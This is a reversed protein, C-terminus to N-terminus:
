LSVVGTAYLLCCLEVRCLVLHRGQEVGRRVKKVFKVQVPKSTLLKEDRLLAIKAVRKEKRDQEMREQAARAIEQMQSSERGNYQEHHVVPKSTLLKEDRQLAPMKQPLAEHNHAAASHILAKEESSLDDDDHDSDGKLKDTTLHPQM